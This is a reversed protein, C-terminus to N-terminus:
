DFYEEEVPYKPEPEAGKRLATEAKARAIRRCSRTFKAHGKESAYYRHRQGGLEYPRDKRTRSM